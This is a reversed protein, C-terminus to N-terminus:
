LIVPLSQPSLESLFEPGDERIYIVEEFQFVAGDLELKPELHLIMGEEIIQGNAKSISPPETVELGGGHGIRSVMGYAPPLDAARWLEEYIDFLAGCTMGARASRALEITLSRTKEYARMEWDAPRGARAIRNRDSPYGGYPARFDTWVYHGTELRKQTPLRSYIFDGHGFVMAIQDARDAGNSMTRAQIRRCLEAETIGLRAGAVAHDFAENVISFATKKLEAEFPTKRMRTRWLADAGSQLTIDDRSSLGAVLEVSGRGFMDQGWDIAVNLKGPSRTSPLADLLTKAGEALYGQYYFTTFTRAESGINRAEIRNACVLLRQEDLLGFMPRANYAWSLTRYDTFYEINKQGTLILVDIGADAMERRIANLRRELEERPAAPAPLAPKFPHDM